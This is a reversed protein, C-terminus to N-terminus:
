KPLEIRIIDSEDPADMDLVCEPAAPLQKAAVVRAALAKIMDAGMDPRDAKDEEIFAKKYEALQRGAAVQDRATFIGERNTIVDELNDLQLDILYDIRQQYSSANTFWEVFLENHWWNRLTRCGPVLQLVLELTVGSKIDLKKSKAVAGFMAKLKRQERSPRFTVETPEEPEIPDNSEPTSKIQDAANHIDVVVEDLARKTPALQSV